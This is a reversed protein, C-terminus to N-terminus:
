EGEKLGFYQEPKYGEKRLVEITEIAHQENCCLHSCVKRILQKERIKKPKAYKIFPARGRKKICYRITEIFVWAPIYGIYRNMYSSLMFTEPIYSLLRNVMWPNELKFDKTVFILKLEDFPNM